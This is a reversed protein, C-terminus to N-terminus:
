TVVLGNYRYVQAGAVNAEIWDALRDIVAQQDVPQGVSCLTNEGPAHRM